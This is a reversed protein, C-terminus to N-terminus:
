QAGVRLDQTVPVARPTRAQKVGNVIAILEDARHACTHRTRITHLGTRVLHGALDRDRMLMSLAATMAAGNEVALYSGIPFLGEADHWPSCVLPIGCALAEFVRITPIGPLAEVYPRRPVHVTMHAAAFARPVRHNALWGAHDIGRAVLARRVDDPYRVGHIRTRLRLRTAPEILFEQLEQTREDDGWNGIWILDVEEAVGGIPRFLATDAAEHWTFVSHGWGRRGYVERLVEGFVLLGDYDDIDFRELEHPATVARHHTDHFLLTFAGGHRRREGLRAVLEPPSWEHVIVVDARDLAADLDLRDAAYAHVRVDPVLQATEALIAEGGDQLANSRSWGDAPEYVSVQHGRGALERAIGRLFHANGHNWCSTFAHYFLVFKM